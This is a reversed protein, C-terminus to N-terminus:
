RLLGGGSGHSPSKSSAMVTAEGAFAAGGGDDAFGPGLAAAGARRGAQVGRVWSPAPKTLRQLQLCALLGGDGTKCDNSTENMRGARLADLPGPVVLIVMSILWYM